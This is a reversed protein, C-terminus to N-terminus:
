LLKHGASTIKFFKDPCFSKTGACEMLGLKILAQMDDSDGCYFGGAARRATHDLIDRQNRTIKEAM